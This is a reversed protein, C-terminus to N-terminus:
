CAFEEALVFRKGSLERIIGKLELALMIEMLEDVPLETSRSIQDLQMTEVELLSVIRKESDTIDPLRVYKHALVQGRLKPLEEFIDDVNTILKAGKKILDNTGASVRSQPAGPVAFVERGQELAYASTILAGSKRGAEVVVVGSSLGSILRNRDPFRSKDPETGPPYESYIAGNSKIKEALGRNFSPYVIDLSSGWVAATKGGGEIAGKHAASDIGEAMGSVVAVGARALSKALNFAFAKGRESASRTGVIAILKENSLDAGVRFLVPPSSAINELQSPFDSDGFFSVSWGLQIVRSVSENVLQRDYGTKIDSAIKHSIGPLAELNAKSAAMAAEPSGFKGVLRHYRTRGVGPISLLGLTAQLREKLENITM